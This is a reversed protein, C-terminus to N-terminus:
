PSRTNKWILITNVASPLEVPEAVTVFKGTAAAALAIVTKFKRSVDGPPVPGACGYPSIEPPPVVILRYLSRLKPAATTARESAFKELVVVSIM